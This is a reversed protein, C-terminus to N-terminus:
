GYFSVYDSADVSQPCLFLLFQILPFLSYQIGYVNNVLPNWKQMLKWTVVPIWNIKEALHSILTPVNSRHRVEMFWWINKLVIKLRFTKSCETCKFPKEGTHLSSHEKLINRTSFYKNRVQTLEWTCSWHLKVLLHWLASAAYLYSRELTCRLTFKLRVQTQLLNVVAQVNSHNRVMTFEWTIRWVQITNSASLVNQVSWHNRKLTFKLIIKLAIILFLFKGCESCQYPKEGTHMRM